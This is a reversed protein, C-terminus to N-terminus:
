LFSFFFFPFFSTYHQAECSLSERGTKRENIYFYLCNNSAASTRNLATKIVDSYGYRNVLRLRVSVPLVLRLSRGSSLHRGGGCRPSIGGTRLVMDSRRLRESPVHLHKEIWQVGQKGGCGKTHSFHQHIVGVDSITSTAKLALLYSQSILYVTCHGLKSALSRQSKWHDLCPNIYFPSRSLKGFSIRRCQIKFKERKVSICNICCFNDWLLFASVWLSLISFPPTEWPFASHFTEMFRAFVFSTSDLCRHGVRQLPLVDHWYPSYLSHLALASHCTVVLRVTYHLHSRCYYQPGHYHHSYLWQLKHPVGEGGGVLGGGRSWWQVLLKGSCRPRARALSLPHVKSLHNLIGMM